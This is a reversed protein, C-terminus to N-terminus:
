DRWEDDAGLVPQSQELVDADPAEVPIRRPYELSSEREAEAAPVVEREQDLADAEPVFPDGM